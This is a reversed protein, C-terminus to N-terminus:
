CKEGGLNRLYVGEIVPSIDILNMGSDFVMPERTNEGVQVYAYGIEFGSDKVYEKVEEKQDDSLIDWIM